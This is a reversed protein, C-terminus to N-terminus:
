LEQIRKLPKFSDIATELRSTSQRKSVISSAVVKSTSSM